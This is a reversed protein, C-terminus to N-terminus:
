ELGPGDFKGSERLRFQLQLRLKEECCCIIKSAKAKAKVWVSKKALVPGEEPMVM